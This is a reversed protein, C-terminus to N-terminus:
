RDTEPGTDERHQDAEQWVVTDGCLSPCLRCTLSEDQGVWRRRRGTEEAGDGSHAAREERQEGDDQAGTRGDSVRRAGSRDVSSRRGSYALFRLPASQAM